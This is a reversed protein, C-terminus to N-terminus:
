GITGSICPRDCATEENKGCKKGCVRRVYGHAGSDGKQSRYEPVQKSPAPKRMSGLRPLFGPIDQYICILPRGGVALEHAIVGGPVGSIPTGEVREIFESYDRRNDEGKAGNYLSTRFVLVLFVSVEKGAAITGAMGTLLQYRVPGIHRLGEDIPGPAYLSVLGMIREPARAVRGMNRDIVAARYYAEVTKNDFPEDVKPEVGVFISKGEATHGWIGLDLQAPNRYSDFKAGFEPTGTELLLRTGLAQALVGELHSSRGQQYHFRHPILCEPGGEVARPARESKFWEEWDSLTAIEKETGSRIKM